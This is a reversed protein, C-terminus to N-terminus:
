QHLFYPNLSHLYLFFAKGHPPFSVTGNEGVIWVVGFLKPDSIRIAFNTSSFHSSYELKPASPNRLVCYAYVM